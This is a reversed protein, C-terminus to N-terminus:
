VRIPQIPLPWRPPPRLPWVRGSRLMVKVAPCGHGVGLVHQLVVCVISRCGCLATFWNSGVCTMWWILCVSRGSFSSKKIYKWPCQNIMSCKFYTYKVLNAYTQSLKITFVHNNFATILFFLLLKQMYSNSNSINFCNEMIRFQKKLIQQANKGKHLYCYLSLLFFLLPLSSSMCCVDGGPGGPHM